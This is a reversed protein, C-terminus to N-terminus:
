SNMVMQAQNLCINNIDWPWNLLDKLLNIKRALIDTPEKAFWIM